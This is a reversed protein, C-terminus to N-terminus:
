LFEGGDVPMVTGTIFSQKLLFSVGDAIAQPNGTRKLPIQEAMRTFHDEDAGQPPLIAGLALGNVQIDPALERALSETLHWLGAKSLRYVIHDGAPHNIRADLINIIHAQQPKSAAFAQSLLLPARLNLNMVQEWHSLDDAMTDQEPFIAASNILVTLDGLESAQSIIEACTDPNSLDAQILKVSGGLAKIENATKQAKDASHNYHLAIAYGQKALELSIARGVRIAGGTVIAVKQQSM